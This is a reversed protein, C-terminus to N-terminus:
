CVFRLFNQRSAFFIFITQRSIKQAIVLKSNTALYKNKQTKEGALAPFDGDSVVQWVSFHRINNLGSYAIQPFIKQIGLTYPLL